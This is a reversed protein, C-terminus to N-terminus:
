RELIFIWQKTEEMKKIDHEFFEQSIKVQFGADILPQFFDMYEEETRYIASYNDQITDSYFTDLTLREKIAIPDSIYILCSDELLTILNRITQHLDPDNIYMFVGGSIFVRNFRKEYKKQNQQVFQVLSTTYFETSEKKTIDERKLVTDRFEKVYDIGVYMKAIDTIYKTMRGTGFGIEFVSCNEDINFLPFWRKLEEETWRRINEIEADSSLVVPADVHVARHTKARNSYLTKVQNIDIDVYEGYIRTNEKQIM